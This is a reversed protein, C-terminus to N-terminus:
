CKKLGPQVREVEAQQKSLELYRSGQSKPNGAEGGSGREARDADQLRTVVSQGGAWGGGAQTPERNRWTGTSNGSIVPLTSLSTPTSRNREKGASTQAESRRPELEQPAAWELLGM